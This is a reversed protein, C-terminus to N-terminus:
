CLACCVRAEEDGRAAARRRAAAARPDPFWPLCLLFALWLGAMLWGAATVANLTPSAPLPLARPRLRELPLALLPGLAAGATSAGVFGASARTRGARGVFDGIYRRNIARASGVGTLLRGLVLLPLSRADWAAAYMANGVLCAIAAFALPGRFSADTWRSYVMSFAMAAVDAAGVIVGGIPAPVGLRLCFADNFPIVINYGLMYLLANADNLLLGLPTAVAQVDPPPPAFVAAQAALVDVLSSSAAAARRAERMADVAAGWSAARELTAAPRGGSRLAQLGLLGELIRRELGVLPSAAQM